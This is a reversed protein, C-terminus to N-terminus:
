LLGLPGPGQGRHERMVFVLKRKKLGKFWDNGTFERDAVIAEVKEVEILTLLKDVLALREATDSNGKKDLLM